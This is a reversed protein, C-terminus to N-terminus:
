VDLQHNISSFDERMMKRIVVHRDTGLFNINIGKENLNELCFWLGKPEMDNSSTVRPDAINLVSFDAILGSESDMVAPRSNLSSPPCPWKTGMKEGKRWPLCGVDPAALGFKTVKKTVSSMASNPSLASLGFCYITYINM